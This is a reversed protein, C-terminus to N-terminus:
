QEVVEMRKIYCRKFKRTDFITIYFYKEDLEIKQVGSLQYYENTNKLKIKLTM